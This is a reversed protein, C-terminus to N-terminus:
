RRRADGPDEGERGSFLEAEAQALDAVLQRLRARLPDDGQGSARAEAHQAALEGFRRAAVVDGLRLYAAAMTLYSAGEFPARRLAERAKALEAGGRRTGEEELRAREREVLDRQAGSLGLGLLHEYVDRTTQASAGQSVCRRAHAWVARTRRPVEQTFYPEARAFRPTWGSFPFCLVRGKGESALVVRRRDASVFAARPDLGLGILDREVRWDGAEEQTWLTLHREGQAGRDDGRPKAAQLTLLLDPGVWAVSQVGREHARGGQGVKPNRLLVPEEASGPQQICVAGSGFGM